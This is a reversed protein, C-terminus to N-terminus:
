KRLVLVLIGFQGVTQNGSIKFGWTLIDYHSPLSAPNRKCLPLASPALVQMRMMFINELPDMKFMHSKLSQFNIGKLIALGGVGIIAKAYRWVAHKDLLGHCQLMLLFCVNNPCSNQITEFVCM